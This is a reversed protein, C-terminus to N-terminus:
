ALNELATAMDTTEHVYNASNFGSDGSVRQQEQIEHYETAFHRKFNTWTKEQDAKQRWEKCEEQYM